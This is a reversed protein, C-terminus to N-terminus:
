DIASLSAWAAVVSGQVRQPLDPVFYWAVGFTVTKIVYGLAVLRLARRSPRPLVVLLRRWALWPLAKAAPRAAQWGPHTLGSM